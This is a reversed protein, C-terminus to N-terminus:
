CSCGVCPASFLSLSVLFLFCSSNRHTQRQFAGNRHEHIPAMRAMALSVWVRAGSALWPAHTSGSATSAVVAATTPTQLECRAQGHMLRSPGIEPIPSFVTPRVKSPFNQAIRAQQLLGFYAPWEPGGHRTVHPRSGGVCQWPQSMKRLHEM